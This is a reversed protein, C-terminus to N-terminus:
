QQYAPLRYWCDDYLNYMYYGGIEASMDAM